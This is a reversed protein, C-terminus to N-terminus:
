ALVGEPKEEEEVKEQAEEIKDLFGLLDSSLDGADSSIEDMRREVQELSIYKFGAIDESLKELRNRFDEVDFKANHLFEEITM